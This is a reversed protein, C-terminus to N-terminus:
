APIISIPLSISFNASNFIARQLAGAQLAAEQRQFKMIGDPGGQEM